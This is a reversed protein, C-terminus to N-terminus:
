ALSSASIRCRTLSTRAPAPMVCTSHRQSLGLVAMGLAMGADLLEAAAVAGRPSRRAVAGKSGGDDSALRLRVEAARPHAEGNPPM